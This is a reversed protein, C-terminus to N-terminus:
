DWKCGTKAILDTADDGTFKEFQGRGTPLINRTRLFDQEM